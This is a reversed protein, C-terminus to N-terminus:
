HVYFPNHVTICLGKFVVHDVFPSQALKKLVYTVWYDKEIYEPRIDLLDSTRTIADAFNSSEHLKM